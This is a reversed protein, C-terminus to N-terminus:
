FNATLSARLTRPQGPYFNNATNGSDFYTKNLANLLNLQWRWQPNIKGFLALDWREYSPLAFTNAPDVFREGVHSVGAAVGWNANIDYRSWLTATTKPVGNFQKGTLAATDKTVTADTRSLSAVIQLAAMPRGSLELEWGKSRQEGVQRDLTPTVTDAVRVNSRTIDFVAASLLMRQELLDWRAGIETQKGRSPEPQVGGVMGRATVEPSFSQSVNAYYVQGSNAGMPMWALGARGTNARVDSIRSANTARDTFTSEIGESRVGLTLRWQPNFSIEDQLYIATTKNRAETNSIVATTPSRVAGYVPNYINIISNVTSRTIRSDDLSDNRELGALWQHQMGLAKAKGSAELMWTADKNIDATLQNRRSLNGTTSILPTTGTPFFYDGDSRGSNNAYGAKLQIGSDFRHNLMLHLSRTTNDFQDSPDGLYRSAPLSLIPVNLALPFGRDFVGDRKLWEAKVDLSTQSSIRWQLAPALYQLKQGVSDRYSNSDELAANLRFGVDAGVGAGLKGGWDLTARRQGDNGISLGTELIQVGPRKTVINLVGGPEFRGYLASAPGRMVELTEVNQFETVPFNVQNRFGDKLQSSALFGRFRYRANANGIGNISAVGPVTRLAENMATVGRDSLLGRGVSSTAFPVEKAPTDSRTAIGTDPVYDPQATVIVPKLTPPTTPMSATTQAFGSTSLAICLLYAARAVPTQNIM